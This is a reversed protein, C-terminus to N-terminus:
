ILENVISKLTNKSKEASLNSNLYDDTNDNLQKNIGRLNAVLKMKSILDDLDNFVYGLKYNIIDESYGTHKSSIVLTHLGFAEPIVLPAPDDRSPVLLCSSESVIRLVDDHDLQGLYNVTTNFIKSSKLEEFYQKDLIQGILYLKLSPFDKILELMADIALDQGKRPEISGVLVYYNKKCTVFQKKINLDFIYPLIKNEVHYGYNKAIRQTYKSVCYTHINAYDNFKYTNFMNFAVDGEHLWWILNPLSKKVKNLFCGSALTNFIVLDFNRAFREFIESNVDDVLNEDILVSIEQEIFDVKLPGDEPSIVVVTFGFERLANCTAILIRPAGTRTLQHTVILIHKGSGSFIDLDNYFDANM